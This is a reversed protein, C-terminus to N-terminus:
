KGVQRGIMWGDMNMWGDTWKEKKWKTKNKPGCTHCISTGLRPTSNSSYSGALAVAVAVCSRLQTQSRCWLERCHQINSGSLLALSRVWIRMSVLWIRKWQAVVPVGWKEQITWKSTQKELLVTLQVWAPARCIYASHLFSHLHTNNVYIDKRGNATETIWAYSSDWGCVKTYARLYDLVHVKLVNRKKKQKKLVASIAYPLERALLWIPAAAAQRHWLWIEHCHQIRLGSLSALSQVRM